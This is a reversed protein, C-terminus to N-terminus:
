PRQTASRHVPRPGGFGWSSGITVGYKSAHTNRGALTTLVAGHMAVSPTLRLSVGGGINLASARGLQDHHVWWENQSITRNRLEELHLEVGGHSVQAAQFVSLRVRPTAMWGVDADIITRTRRYGAVREYVAYAFRGHISIPGRLVGAYAGLQVEAMGTGIASHAFFEYDHTPVAVALYPAIAVPFERWGYRAEVRVDQFAAHTTGDDLVHFDSPNAPHVHPNVGSYKTAVFPVWARVSLRDTVGYEVEVTLLQTRVHGLDIREGRSFVHDEVFFHHYLISIAGEGAPLVWPQARATGPVCFTAGIAALLIIRRAGATM